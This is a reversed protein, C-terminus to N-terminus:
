QRRRDPTSWRRFTEVEIRGSRDVRVTVHGHRATVYREIARGELVRQWKDRRLRSRGSSQLVVQPSVAALWQPSAEVFSGHHPLDAVDASLDVSEELMATLALQQVDGSLLLRRGAVRVSMVLSVDNNWRTVLEPPPWLIELEADGATERWGRAVTHVEIGRQRLQDVVFATAGDADANAEALLQPSVVVRGIAIADAVDLSGNFHDLDAHSLVLTDIRGIGLTRLAPVISQTGVDFYAASGCDFMITEGGLEVVFCSGDGVAFMHLAAADGTARDRGLWAWAPPYQSVLLWSGMLGVAVAMAARRTAFQGALWATVLGVSALTWTLPPPHGLELTAAPWNSARNVLGLMMDTVWALPEALLISGSPLMVGVLIKVYGVALMAWVVPLALVSLLIALPSIVQFHYAVLPLAVLFAVISVALYDVSWRMVTETPSPALLRISPPPWLWHSTPKAFVILAAVIGFSLQFGPSFLETPRWLLVVVCAVSLLSLGSARRGSGYGICFTGAMIASRLIPVTVPLAMLYALLVVLAGQAAQPPKSVVLRLVMWVIGMLMGLHAGSITLLHALGVRRFDERVEGLDDSWQGLLLTQLLGRQVPQEELGLSLSRDAAAATGRRLSSWWRRISWGPGPLRQWNGGHELSLQGIIGRQALRQRHDIEGPNSPGDVASLWGRARMRQGAALSPNARNIRLLLKGSVTAAAGGAVTVSEVRLVGLTVPREWNFAGMAGRERSRLWPEGELTGTVEALQSEDTLFRGLGDAAPVQTRLGFWSASLVVVGLWGWCRAARWRRRHAMVLMACLPVLGVLLWGRPLVVVSGILVGAMAGLALRILVGQRIGLAEAERAAIVGADM